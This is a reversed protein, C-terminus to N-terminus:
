IDNLLTRGQQFTELLTGTELATVVLVNFHLVPEFHGLGRLNLSKRMREALRQATGADTKPTLVAFDRGGLYAVTDGNRFISQITSAARRLLAQEHTHRTRGSDSGMKLRVLLISNPFAQKRELWSIQKEFYELSSLGTVPDRQERISQREQALRIETVDQLFEIAGVQIGELNYISRTKQNLYAGGPKFDPFFTELLLDKDEVRATPWEKALNGPKGLAFDILLHYGEGLILTSGETTTKGIIDQAPINTLSEMGPNWAIIQGKRNAALISGPMFNVIESVAAEIDAPTGSISKQQNLESNQAQAQLPQAGRRFESVRGSIYGVLGCVVLNIGVWVIFQGDFLRFHGILSWLGFNFLMVILGALLGAISGFYWGGVWVPIISLLSIGEGWFFHLPIFLVGYVLLTALVLTMRRLAHYAPFQWKFFRSLKVVMSNTIRSLFICGTSIFLLKLDALNFVFPRAFTL